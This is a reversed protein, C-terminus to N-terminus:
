GYTLGTATKLETVPVPNTGVFRMEKKQLEDDSFAAGNSFFPQTAPLDIVATVESYWFGGSEYTNGLPVDVGVVVDFNTQGNTTRDMPYNVGNIAVDVSAPASAAAPISLTHYFPLTFGLPTVGAPFKILWTVESRLDFGWNNDSFDYFLAMYIPESPINTINAVCYDYASQATAYSISSGRGKKVPLTVTLMQTSAGLYYILDELVARTQMYISLADVRAGVLPLWTDGYGAATLLTEEDWDSGDSQVFREAESTDYLSPIASRIEAVTLGVRDARLGDFDAAEPYTGVSGWSTLTRGLLAERENIAYCMEALLHGVRDRRLGNWEGGNYWGM